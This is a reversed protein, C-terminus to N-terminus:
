RVPKGGHENALTKGILASQIQPELQGLIQPCTWAMGDYVGCMCRGGDGVIIHVKDVVDMLHKPLESSM